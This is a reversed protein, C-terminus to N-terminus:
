AAPLFVCVYTGSRGPRTCSRIRVFGGHKQVAARTVWLGLNGGEAHTSTFPEFIAQIRGHDMGPGRDAVVVRVGPRGGDHWERSAFVHVIVRGNPRAVEIANTFLNALAHRLEPEFGIIEGGYRFRREITVESQHADQQVLAANVLDTVRFRSVLSSGRYIGLMQKSLRTMRDTEERAIAILEKEKPGLAPSKGVLALAYIVSSLPNNIEHALSAAMQSTTEARERQLLLTRSQKLTTAMTAFARAFERVESPGSEPVPSDFDGAELAVLRKKLRSIPTTVLLAAAYALLLAIGAWLAALSFSVQRVTLVPALAEDLSMQALVCGRGLEAVYRTVWLKGPAANAPQEDCRVAPRQDSSSAIVEGSPLVLFTRGTQGVGYSAFIARIPELDFATVLHAGLEDNHQHITYVAAGDPAQLFLIEETASKQSTLWAGCSGAHVPKRKRTTMVACRGDERELFEGMLERLCVPNMGGGTACSLEANQMLDYAQERKRNLLSLLLQKRNEAGQALVQLASERAAARSMRYAVIGVVM